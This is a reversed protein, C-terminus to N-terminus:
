KVTVKTSRSYAGWGLANKAQVRIYYSKKSKAKKWTYSRSKSSLSKLTKWKKGNTSYQVRYGKVKSGNSAAAKWSVKVTKKKSSKAKVSTPALPKAAPTVSAAASTAGEGNSSRAAVRFQYAVGNTLGTASFTTGTVSGRRTWATWSKNTYSRSEITYGTVPAGGNSAPATWALAASRDGRKVRVTLPASPVAPTVITTSAVPGNGASNVAHVRAEYTTGSQLGPLTMSTSTTSLETWAGGAIRYGVTYSKAPSGSAGSPAQWTLRIESLKATASLNQVVGPLATTTATASASWPSRGQSNEAAVQFEFRTNVPLGTLQHSLGGVVAPLTTWAPSSGDANMARYRLVYSPTVTDGLAAPLTLASWSASISTGDVTARLGAPTAPATAVTFQRAASTGLVTARKSGLAEVSWYYTVGATLATTPAFSTAVTEVGAASALAGESTAVRVLYRSAGDEEPPPPSWELRQAGAVLKAGSATQLAPARSAITFTAGVGDGSYNGATDITRVAWGYTGPALDTISVASQLLTGSGPLNVKTAPTAVNWYQGAFKAATAPASWALTATSPGVTVAGPVPAPSQINFPKPESEQGPRGNADLAAVTFTYNKGDGLPKGTGPHRATYFPYEVKASGVVTGDSARITIQYGRSGGDGPASDFQPRWRLTTTGNVESVPTVGVFDVPTSGKRWSPSSSEPLEPTIYLWSSDTWQVNITGARVRWYYPLGTLNDELVGTLRLRTSPTRLRTVQDDFDPDRSIEVEYGTAGRVANWSFLPSPQGSPEAAVADSWAAADITITTPADGAVPEAVTFFNGRGDGSDMDPGSWASEQTGTPNASADLKTTASGAYDIGRVRWSYTVGPKIRKAATSTWLCTSEGELAGPSGTGDFVKAVITASTSATRCTLVTSEGEAANLSYVEVEYLTARAIPTWVLEFDTLSLEEPTASSSSGTLAVPAVKDFALPQTADTQPGWRKLFQRVESRQGSQGETDTAVVQWYYTGDQLVTTPEYATATTTAPYGGQLETVTGTALTGTFSKGVFIEYRSAGLVPEWTFRLDSIGPDSPSTWPKPLLLTPRSKEAPWSVTFSRPGSPSGALGTTTGDFFNAAVRWHWVIAKGDAERALLGPRTVSTGTTTERVITAPAFGSDSSYELTYSIAGPVAKWAFTVPTPYPVAQGDLPSTLVPKTVAGRSFAGVESWPGRSADSTGADHAAVRWFLEREERGDITTPPVWQTNTTQQRRVGVTFTRDASLEVTYGTAGPVASWSLVADGSYPVGTTSLVPAATPVAAAPAAVLMTTTLSLATLWAAVKRIHM